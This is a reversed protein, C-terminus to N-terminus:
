AKKSALLLVKGLSEVLSGSVPRTANHPVCFGVCGAAIAAMAVLVALNVLLAVIYWSNLRNLLRINEFLLARFGVLVSISAGLMALYVALPQPYAHFSVISLGAVFFAGIVGILLWYAVRDPVGITFEILDPIPRSEYSQEDQFIRAEPLPRVNEVKLVCSDPVTIAFYTSTGLYEFTLHFWLYGILSLLRHRLEVHDGIPESQTQNNPAKAMEKASETESTEHKLPELKEEGYAILFTLKVNEFEDTKLSEEFQIGIPLAPKKTSQRESMETKIEETLDERPIAILKEDHRGRVDLRPLYTSFWLVFGDLDDTGTNKITYTLTHRCRSPTEFNLSRTERVYKGSQASPM